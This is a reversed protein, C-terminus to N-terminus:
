SGRPFIRLPSLPLGWPRDMPAAMASLVTVSHFGGGQQGPSDPHEYESM